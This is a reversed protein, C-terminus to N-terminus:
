TSSGKPLLRPLRASAARVLAFRAAPGSLLTVLGLGHGGGVSQGHAIVGVSTWGRRPQRGFRHDQGHLAVVDGFRLAAAARAISPAALQLDLNYQLPTMGIGAGAAEPPLEAVVPIVIREEGDRGGLLREALEPSCSHFAIDPEDAIALGVGRAEVAVREGPAMRRLAAPAFSVLVGGHKGFVLGEAGAAPGDLVM